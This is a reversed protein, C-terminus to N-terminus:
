EPQHGHLSGDDRRVPLPSIVELLYRTGDEDVKRSHAVGSLVRFGARASNLADHLARRVASEILERQSDHSRITQVVGSEHSWDMTYAAAALPDTVEIELEAVFRMFRPADPQQESM